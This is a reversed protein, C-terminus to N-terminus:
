SLIYAAAFPSRRSHRDETDRFPTQAPPAEGFFADHTIGVPANMNQRNRQLALLNGFAGASAMRRSARGQYVETMLVVASLRAVLDGDVFSRTSVYIRAAERLAVPRLIEMLPSSRGQLFQSIVEGM